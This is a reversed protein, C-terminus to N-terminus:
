GFVVPWAYFLAVAVANHTVHQTINAWMGYKVRVYGLMMGGTFQPIVMLMVALRIPDEYNFIHMFGFLASTIWFAYPFLRRYRDSVSGRDWQVAMVVATAAVWALFLIVGITPDIPGAILYIVILTAVFLWPAVFMAIARRQGSLGARFILEEIPPALIIVFLVTQFPTWDDEIEQPLNIGASEAALASAVFLLVVMWDLLLLVGVQRIATWGFSIREAPLRPDRLFDFFERWVARVNWM